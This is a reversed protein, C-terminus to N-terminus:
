SYGSGGEPSVWLVHRRGYAPSPRVSRWHDQSTRANLGGSSPVTYLHAAIVITTGMREWEWPIMGMGM